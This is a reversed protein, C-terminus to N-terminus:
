QVIALNKADWLPKLPAMAPHLGFFGDLDLIQKEPVAITPRMSFYAPEAHPIVINLGDAAGRQFVVVLRKGRAQATTMQALVSRELFTPVISTGVLALAGNRIFARRTAMESEKGFETM